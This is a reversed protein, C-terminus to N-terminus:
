RWKCDHLFVWPEDVLQGAAVTRGTADDLLLAQKLRVDEKLRYQVGQALQVDMVYCRIRQPILPHPYVSGKLWLVHGGAQVIYAERGFIQSMRLSEFSIGDIGRLVAPFDRDEQIVAVRSLDDVATGDLSIFSQRNYACANLGLSLILCLASKGHNAM